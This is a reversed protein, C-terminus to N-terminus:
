SVIDIKKNPIFKQASAHLVLVNSIGRAYTGFYQSHMALKHELKFPYIHLVNSSYHHQKAVFTPFFHPVFWSSPYHHFNHIVTNYSFFM